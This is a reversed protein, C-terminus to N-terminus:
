DNQQEKMKAIAEFLAQVEEKTELTIKMKSIPPGWEDAEPYNFIYYKESANLEKERGCLLTSTRKSYTYMQLFDETPQITETHCCEPKLRETFAKFDAKTVEFIEKNDIM